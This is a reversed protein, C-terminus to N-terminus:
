DGPATTPTTVAMMTAQMLAVLQRNQGSVSWVEGSCVTLTRGARVVRGIAALLDGGAPALLNLKFEVSLVQRGEAMGMAAAVGCATDAMTALVGAHVAGTHQLLDPRPVLQLEVEGPEIRAVTVGLTEMFPQRAVIDVVVQRARDDM